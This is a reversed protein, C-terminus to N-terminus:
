RLDRCSPLRQGGNELRLNSSLPHERYLLQELLAIGKRATEVPIQGAKNQAEPIQSFPSGIVCSTRVVAVFRLFVGVKAAFGPPLEFVAM